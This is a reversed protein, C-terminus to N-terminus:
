GVSFYSIGKDGSPRDPFTQDEVLQRHQMILAMASNVVYFDNPNPNIENEEIVKCAVDLMAMKARAEMDKWFALDRKPEGM